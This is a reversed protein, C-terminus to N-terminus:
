SKVRVATTLVGLVGLVRGGDQAPLMGGGPATCGVWPKSGMRRACSRSPVSHPDAVSWPSMGPDLPQQWGPEAGRPRAKWPVAGKLGKPAKAPSPGRPSCNTGAAPAHRAPAAARAFANRAAGLPVPCLAVGVSGLAPAPPHGTGGLGRDGGQAAPLCWSHEAAPEAGLRRPEGGPGAGQFGNAASAAERRAAPLRQCTSPAAESPNAGGSGGGAAGKTPHGRRAPLALPAAHPRAWRPLGPIAPPQHPARTKPSSQPSLLFLQM